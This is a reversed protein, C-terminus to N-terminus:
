SEFITDCWKTKLANVTFKMKLCTFKLKGNTFQLGTKM